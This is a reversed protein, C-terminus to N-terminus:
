FPIEDDLDIVKPQWSYNLIKPFKEAHNVTIKLPKELKQAIFLLDNMSYTEIPSPLEYGREKYFLPIKWMTLWESINGYKGYDCLYDVRITDNGKKSKHYKYVVDKVEYSEIDGTYVPKSAM